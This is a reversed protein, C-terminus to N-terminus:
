KHCFLINVTPKASTYPGSWRPVGLDKLSRESMTMSGTLLDKM